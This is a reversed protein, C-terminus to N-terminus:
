PSQKNNNPITGFLQALNQRHGQINKFDWGAESQSLAAGSAGAVIGEFLHGEISDFDISNISNAANFKMGKIKFGSIIKKSVKELNKKIKPTM